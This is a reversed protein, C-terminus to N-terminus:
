NGTRQLWRNLDSRMWLDAEWEKVVVEDSGSGGLLVKVGRVNSNMIDGQRM